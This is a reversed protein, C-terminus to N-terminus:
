VSMKIMAIYLREGIQRSFHAAMESPHVTGPQHTSKDSGCGCRQHVGADEMPKWSRICAIQNVGAWQLILFKLASLISPIHM